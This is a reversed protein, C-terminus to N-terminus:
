DSLFDEWRSKWEEYRPFHVMMLFFSTGLFAYFGPKDKGLLFLVLGYIGISNSLAYTIIHSSNLRQIFESEKAAKHNKDLDPSSAEGHSPSTKPPLSTQGSLIRNKIIVMMIVEMAAVVILIIRLLNYQEFEGGTVLDIDKLFFEVLLAYVVLSFMMAYAIVVATKHASKLNTDDFM